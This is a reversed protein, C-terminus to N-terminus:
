RPIQRRVFRLTWATAWCLVVATALTSVDSITLKPTPQMAQFEAKSLVVQVCSVDNISASPLAQLVNTVTTRNSAGTSTSTSLFTYLTVTTVCTAM